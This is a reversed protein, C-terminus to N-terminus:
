TFGTSQLRIPSAPPPPSLSASSSDSVITVTNSKSVPTDIAEVPRTAVAASAEQRALEAFNITAARDPKGQEVSAAPQAFLKLSFNFSLSLAVLFAIKGLWTCKPVSRIVRLFEKLAPEAYM